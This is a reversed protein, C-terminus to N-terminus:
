TVTINIKKKEKQSRAYREKYLIEIKEKQM